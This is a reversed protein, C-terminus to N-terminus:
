FFPRLPLMVTFTAGREPAANNEAWIRGNHQEVIAKAVFLGLGIGQGNSRTSFFPRFIESMFEVPIGHGNDKVSFAFQRSVGRQDTPKQVPLYSRSNTSWFRVQIPGGAPTMADRANILLNILVQTIRNHDCVVTGLDDEVEFEIKINTQEQFQKEVLALSDRLIMRIDTVAMQPEDVHAYDQLVRAIQAIRFASREILSVYYVLLEQDQREEQLEYFLKSCSSTIINLPNTLEHATSASLSGISALRQTHSLARGLQALYDREAKELEGDSSQKIEQSLAEDMRVRRRSFERQPSTNSQYTNLIPWGASITRIRATFHNHLTRSPKHAAKTLM